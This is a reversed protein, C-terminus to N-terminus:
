PNYCYTKAVCLDPGRLLIMLGHILEHDLKLRLYLIGTRNCSYESGSGDTPFPQLLGSSDNVSGTCTM